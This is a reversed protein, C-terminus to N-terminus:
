PQYTLEVSAVGAAINLGTNGEVSLPQLSVSNNNGGVLANASAGVGASAGATVGGYSGALAGPAQNGTPTFVGWAMIGGNHYGIDVGYKDIKGTYKEEAHTADQTYVCNIEKTSGFVLGWGGSVECTLVGSKVGSPDAHAQAAVAFSAAAALGLLVRHTRNM